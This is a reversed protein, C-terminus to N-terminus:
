KFTLDAFHRQKSGTTKTKNIQDQDQLCLDQDQLPRAIKTKTKLIQDNKDSDIIMMMSKIAHRTPILIPADSKWKRTLLAHLDAPFFPSRADRREFDSLTM